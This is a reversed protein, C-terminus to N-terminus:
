FTDGKHIDKTPTGTAVLDFELLVAPKDAKTSPGNIGTVLWNRNDCPKGAANGEPGYVMAMISSNTHLAAMDNAAAVDDYMLVVKATGAKLKAAHKEYEIGAGSSMDEDGVKRGITVEKWRAEVDVGNMRLYIDNGNYEAM